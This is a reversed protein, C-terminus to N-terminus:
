KKRTPILCLAGSSDKQIAWEFRESLFFAKNVLEKYKRISIMSDSGTDDFLFLSMGDVNDKSLDITQDGRILYKDLVIIQEATAADFMEDVQTQTLEVTEGFPNTNALAIIKQKWSSCAIDHILQLHTKLITQKVSVELVFDEISVQKISSPLYSRGNWDGLENMYYYYNPMGNPLRATGISPLVTKIIERLKAIAVPHNKDVYIALKKDKFAQLHRM